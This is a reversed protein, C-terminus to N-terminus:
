AEALGAYRLVASISLYKCEFVGHVESELIVGSHTSGQLPDARSLCAYAQRLRIVERPRVHNPLRIARGIVVDGAQEKGL